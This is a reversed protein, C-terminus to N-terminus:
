QVPAEIAIGVDDALGDEDVLHREGDDADRRFTKGAREVHRLRWVERQREGDLRQETPSRESRTRGANRHTCM